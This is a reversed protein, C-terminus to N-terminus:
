SSLSLSRHAPPLNSIIPRLDPYVRSLWPYAMPVLVETLLLSNLLLLVLPLLFYLVDRLDAHTLAPTNPIDAVAKSQSM